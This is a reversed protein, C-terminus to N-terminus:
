EIKFFSPHLKSYKIRLERGAILRRGEVGQEVTERDTSYRIVAFEQYSTRFRITYPIQVQGVITATTTETDQSLYYDRLKQNTLIAFDEMKIVMGVGLAVIIIVIARNIIWKGPSDIFKNPKAGDIKVLLPLGVIVLGFILFVVTWTKAQGWYEINHNLTAKIM